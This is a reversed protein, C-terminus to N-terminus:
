ATTLGTIKGHFAEEGYDLGVQTYWFGGKKAATIGTEVFIIAGGPVAPDFAPVPCFVPSVVSMDAILVTDTPMNPALVIGLMTFDTEIQKINLGGVNRDMPAYGYIDSLQQKQFANVFCVMNGWQAGNASMTKLIADMLKKSLPVSGAAKTNTSIAEIIGRTKQNTSALSRAVYSGQLFSYDMDIALQKLQANKQFDYENVVPQNGLVSLGSIEGIASQKALSVEVDKKMIQCTNYAQARTVTTPTGAAAATAESQTDQSASTLTYKQSVPFEFSKSQKGGGGNLGGIMNLFPTQYAGVLYLVGLYNVDERDTYAM